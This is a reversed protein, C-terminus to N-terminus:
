RKITSIQNILLRVLAGNTYDIVAGSNTDVVLNAVSAAELSIDVLDKFGNKIFFIGNMGDDRAVGAVKPFQVGFLASSKMQKKLKDWTSDVLNEQNKVLKINTLVNDNLLKSTATSASGVAGDRTSMLISALLGYRPLKIIDKVQSKYTYSNEEQRYDLVLNLAEAGPGVYEVIDVDLYLNDSSYVVPATNADDLINKYPNQLIQVTATPINTTRFCTAYHEEKSVAYPFAFHMTLQENFNQNQGTTGYPVTTVDANPNDTAAAAGTARIVNFNKALLANEFGFLEPSGSKFADSGRAVNITSILSHMVSGYKAVPTGSGFTAVVSGRLTFELQALALIDNPLYKPPLAPTKENLKFSDWPRRNLRIPLAPNLNLGPLM